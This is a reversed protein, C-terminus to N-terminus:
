TERLPTYKEKIVNLHHMQHGVLLFGMALISIIYDWSKGQRMLTEDDFSKLLAKTSTRVIKLEDILENVNRKDSKSNKVYEDHDFSTAVPNNERAFLLMRYNFIRETDIIHQLIDQVTWKGPAYRKNAVDSMSKRDLLDLQRISKEIADELEIDEVLNIYRDYYEPLTKIDSKKM